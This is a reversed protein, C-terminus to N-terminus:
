RGGDDRSLTVAGDSNSPPIGKSPYTSFRILPILRPQFAANKM